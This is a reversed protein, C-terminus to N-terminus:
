FYARFNASLSQETARDPRRQFYYSASFVLEKSIIQDLSLNLTPTIGLPDNLNIEFPLKDISATRRIIAVETILATNKRFQWRRKLDLNATVLQFNDYNSYTINRWGLSATLDLALNYGIFPELSIQRQSERHLILPLSQEQQSLNYEFKAKLNFDSGPTALLEISNQNQWDKQGIYRYDLNYNYNNELYISFNKNQSFPFIGLRADHNYNRLFVSTDNEEQSFNVLTNLDLPDFISFDLSGHWEQEQSRSIAGTPEFVRQFNGNTDPYFTGTEPDRKYDGLGSDVQIYREKQEQTQQNSRHHDIRFTVGQTLNYSGIIDAFYQNWRGFNTIPQTESVEPVELAQLGLVGQLEVPKFPKVDLDAKYTRRFSAKQWVSVLTDKDEEQIQEYSLNTQWRESPKIGLGTNLTLLRSNERNEKLLYLSPAFFKIKPTLNLNQRLINQIKNMEYGAWFFHTGFNFRNQTAYNHTLLRGYGGDVSFFHFPKIFGSVEDTSLRTTEPVDGWIYSFDVDPSRMPNIFKTPTVKRKYSFGYNAKEWGLNTTYAFGTNNTDGSASFLNQDSRSMSGALDLNLGNEMKVGFDALYIENKQPLAIHRKAVFNGEPLGVYQYISDNYVYDGLSDGVFTFTVDYEGLNHGAYVYHSNVRIYDGKGLGVYSGGDLWTRSTDDGIMSLSEIDANSLNYTLSQNQNDSEQFNEIGFSFPSLQYSAGIGFDYRDYADFTYEFNIEIRSQNTIIRKNTFTVQALSYDITYDENWGRTMEEGDLYIIESAPVITISPEDAKLQYPGQIGDQGIFTIKRYKGKPRSYSAQVKAKDPNGLVMAGTAQREITGFSGFPMTLDYDGFSGSWGGKRVNILIKDLESIEKTIGEAPIPSSQDSLAAEIEVGAVSGELNLRTAQDIGLGEASGVSFGLTKSGSVMLEELNATSTDLVIPNVSEKSVTQGPNATTETEVSHVAYSPSLNLFPISQYHILIRTSEPLPNSFLITGNEYDIKYLEKSVLSDRIFISDSGTLIFRDALNYPGNTNNGSLVIEKSLLTNKLEACFLLSIMGILILFGTIIIKNVM